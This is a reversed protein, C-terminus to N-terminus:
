GKTPLSPQVRQGVPVYENMWESVPKLAPHTLSRELLRWVRPIHELYSHKDDRRSLRTFIGIVKAHRAAGLAAIDQRFTEPDLSADAALYRSIMRDYLDTDIDRRADELLSMVDYARPGVVADQFDLLGCRATGPRDPLWMLNDVHYDRLVLTERRDAASSLATRWLAEWDDLIQTTTPAGTLSPLYWEIFLRAEALMRDMDYVPTGAPVNDPSALEHLRVLVDVALAYMMEEDGGDHLVRTYTNDGLDELLLFGLREDEALVRPASFGLQTLYRAVTAFPRVDEQPPPADMLVAGREKLSVRDYRRFSADAALPSMIAGAWGVDGLFSKAAADRRSM